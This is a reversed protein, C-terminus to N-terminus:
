LYTFLLILHGEYILKCLVKLFLSIIRNWNELLDWMKKSLFLKFRNEGSRMFSMKENFLAETKFESTSLSYFIAYESINKACFIHSNIHCPTLCFMKKPPPLAFLFCSFIQTSYVNILSNMSLSCRPLKTFTFHTFIDLKTARWTALYIFVTFYHSHAKLSYFNCLFFTNKLKKSASKRAGLLPWRRSFYSTNHGSCCLFSLIVLLM